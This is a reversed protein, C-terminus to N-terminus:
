QAAPGTAPTRPPVDQSFGLLHLLTPMTLGQVVISFAVVGFSALVIEDRGAFGRPLALALALALAGRLGGWWLVHQARMPVAWRSWGFAACIPYVTLARGLLVLAVAIALTTVDLSHRAV